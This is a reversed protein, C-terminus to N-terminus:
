KKKERNIIHRYPGGFTYSPGGEMLIDGLKLQLLEGTFYESKWQNDYPGDVFENAIIIEYINNFQIRMWPSRVYETKHGRFMHIERYNKEKILKLQKKPFFKTDRFENKKCGIRVADYAGFYMPLMLIEDKKPFPYREM